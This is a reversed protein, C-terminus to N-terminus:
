VLDNHLCVWMVGPHWVCAWVRGELRPSARSPAAPAWATMEVESSRVQKCFSGVPNRPKSRRCSLLLMQPSLPHVWTLIRPVNHGTGFPDPLLLFCLSVWAITECDTSGM